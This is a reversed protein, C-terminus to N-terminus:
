YGLKRAEADSDSLYRISPTPARVIPQEPGLDQATGDKRLRLHTREGGRSASVLIDGRERGIIALTWGEDELRAWQAKQPTIRRSRWRISVAERGVTAGGRFSSGVRGPRSLFVKVPGLRHANM